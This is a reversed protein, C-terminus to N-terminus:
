GRFRAMRGDPLEIEFVWGGPPGPPALGLEVFERQASPRLRRQWVQFTSAPIGAEECFASRTKGSRDYRALIERWESERRQVRGNTQAQM